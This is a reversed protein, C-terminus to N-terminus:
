WMASPGSDNQRPRSSVSKQMRPRTSGSREYALRLRYEYSGSVSAAARALATSIMDDTVADVKANVCGNGIYLGLLHAFYPFGDSFFVLKNLQDGSVALELLGFGRVLVDLLESDPM